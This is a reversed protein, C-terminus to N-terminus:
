EPIRLEILDPCPSALYPPHDNSPGEVLFQLIRLTSYCHLLEFSCSAAGIDFAKAPHKHPSSLTADIADDDLYVLVSVTM